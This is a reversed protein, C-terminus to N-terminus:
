QKVSAEWMFRFVALGLIGAIGGLYKLEMAKRAEKEEQISGLAKSNASRLSAIETYLRQMQQQNERQMWQMDRRMLEVQYHLDAIPDEHRGPRSLQQLEPPYNTPWGSPPPTERM